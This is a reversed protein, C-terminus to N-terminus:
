LMSKATRPTHAAQEVPARCQDLTRLETVAVWATHRQVEWVQIHRLTVHHQQGPGGTAAFRGPQRQHRAQDLGRSAGQPHRALVM